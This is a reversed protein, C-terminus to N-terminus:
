NTTIFTIIFIIPPTDDNSADNDYTINTLIMIRIVTFIIVIVIIILFFLYYNFYNCHFLHQLLVVM